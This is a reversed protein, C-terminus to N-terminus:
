KTARGAPLCDLIYAIRKKLDPFCFVITLNEKKKEDGM